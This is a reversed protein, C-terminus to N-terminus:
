HTNACAPLLNSECGCRHVRWQNLLTSLITHQVPMLDIHPHHLLTKLQEVVKAAVEPSHSFSYQTMLYFLGAQLQDIQEPEPTQHSMNRFGNKINILIMRM